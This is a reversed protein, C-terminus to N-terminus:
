TIKKDELLLRCVLDFRSQLESTHEESRPIVSNAWLSNPSMTNTSSGSTPSVIVNLSDKPVTSDTFVTESNYAGILPVIVLTFSSSSSLGSNTFSDGYSFAQIIVTSM